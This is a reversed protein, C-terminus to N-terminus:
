QPVQMGNQGPIEAGFDTLLFYASTNSTLYFVMSVTVGHIDGTVVRGNPSVTYSGSLSTYQNQVGGRNVFIDSFNVTSNGDFTVVGVRGVTPPTTADFGIMRFAYEGNLSSASYPGGQQLLMAGAALTNQDQQLMFGQTSDAMWAVQSIPSSGAPTVTISARGRSDVSYTGTFSGNATAGDVSSDFSGTTLNGNGDSNFAAITNIGGLNSATDGGMHFTFGSTISGNTFSTATQAVGRGEGVVGTDTRIFNLTNSDIAYYVYNSTNATDDTLRLTGRGNGDPQTLSGTITHSSTTGIQAVDESGTISTGSVVMQGVAASSASGVVHTYFRFVYAGSPASTASTAQAFAGGTGTAFTDYELLYVDTTSQLTIALQIQRGPLTLTMTGTGDGSITYSGTFPSNSATAGSSFDDVGTLGGNGDAVFAGTEHYLNFGKPLGFIMGGLNYTYHGQLSALSFRQKPQVPQHFISNCCTSFLVILLTLLASATNRGLAKQTIREVFIDEV